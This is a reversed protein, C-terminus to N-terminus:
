EHTLVAGLSARFEHLIREVSRKSRGTKEAIEGVENGAIRHSIIQRHSSPLPALLEEITMQLIQLEHDNGDPIENELLNGSETQRVDRKAAKHHAATARVKNLAIVLFLKWLDEGAPVDFEGASLRRFFTRFVSQVIDDPDVRQALDASTQKAALARLRAAYRSFLETAADGTGGRFKQLLSNDSTPPTQNAASM